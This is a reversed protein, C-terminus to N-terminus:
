DIPNACHQKFESWTRKGKKQNCDICMPYLNRMSNSGKKKRSVSHDVQWAGRAGVKGHNKRTLCKRCCRCKGDTKKFIEDLQSNILSM